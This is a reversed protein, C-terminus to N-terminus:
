YVVGDMCIFGNQDFQTIKNLNICNGNKDLKCEYRIEGFNECNNGLYNDDIEEFTRSGEPTGVYPRHAMAQISWGRTKDNYQARSITCRAIEISGFLGKTRVFDNHIERLCIARFKQLTNQPLICNSQAEFKPAQRECVDFYSNNSLNVKVAPKTPLPKSNYFSIITYIALILAISFLAIKSSIRM